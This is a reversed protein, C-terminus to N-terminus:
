RTRNRVRRRRTRNRSHTGWTWRGRPVVCGTRHGSGWTCRRGAHARGALHHLSRRPLARRLAISLTRRASPWHRRRRTRGRLHRSWAHWPRIPLPRHTRRLHHAARGGAHAARATRGPRAHGWPHLARWSRAHRRRRTCGRAHITSRARAHGRGLLWRWLLTNSKQVIAEIQANKLVLQLVM